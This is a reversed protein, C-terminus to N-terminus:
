NSEESPDTSTTSENKQYLRSIKNKAQYRASALRARQRRMELAEDGEYLRPRGMRRPLIGAQKLEEREAAYKERMRLRYEPRSGLDRKQQLYYERNNAKWREVAARKKLIKESVSQM